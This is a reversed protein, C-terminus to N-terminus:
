QLTGDASPTCSFHQDRGATVPMGCSQCPHYISHIFAGRDGARRNVLNDKAAQKAGERVAKQSHHGALARELDRQSMPTPASEALIRVVALKASETKADARSGAVYSLRRSSEDYSLRGEPVSVDRGYASFFRPSSPDDPDARVLRWIADPWDQLRSEGRARENTHGM